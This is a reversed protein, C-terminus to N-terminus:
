RTRTTDTSPRIAVRARARKRVPEVDIASPVDVDRGQIGILHPSDVALRWASGRRPSQRARSCRHCKSCRARSEGLMDRDRAVLAEVDGVMFIVADAANPIADDSRRPFPAQPQHRRPRATSASTPPGRCRRRRQLCRNDCAATIADSMSGLPLMWAAPSRAVRGIEADALGHCRRANPEDPPTPRELDLAGAFRQEDSRWVLDITNPDSPLPPCELAYCPNADVLKRGRIRRPANRQVEGDGQRDMRRGAREVEGVVARVLDVRELAVDCADDHSRSLGRM